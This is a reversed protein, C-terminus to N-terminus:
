LQDSLWMDFALAAAFALACVVLTLLTLKEMWLEITPDLPIKALALTGLTGANVACLPGGRKFKTKTDASLCTLTDRKPRFM